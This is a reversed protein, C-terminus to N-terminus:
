ADVLKKTKFEDAGEVDLNLETTIQNHLDVQKNYEALYREAEQLFGKASQRLSSVTVTQESSKSVETVVKVPKDGDPLGQAAPTAEISM